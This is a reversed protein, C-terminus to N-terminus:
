GEIITGGGGDGSPPPAPAPAPAPEPSPESPTPSATTDGTSTGGGAPAPPPKLDPVAAPATLGSVKPSKSPAEIREAGPMDDGDGSGKAMAYAGGFAVVGLLVALVIRVPSVRMAAQAQLLRPEHM